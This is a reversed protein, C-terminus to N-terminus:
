WSGYFRGGKVQGFYPAAPWSPFSNTPMRILAREKYQAKKKELRLRERRLFRM